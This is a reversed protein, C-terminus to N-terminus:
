RLAGAIIQWKDFFSSYDCIKDRKEVVKKGDFHFCFSYVGNSVRKKAGKVKKM